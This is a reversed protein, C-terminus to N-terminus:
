HVLRVAKYLLFNILCFFCLKKVQRLLLLSEEILEEPFDKQM